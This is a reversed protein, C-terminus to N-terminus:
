CMLLWKTELSIGEARYIDVIGSVRTSIDVSSGGNGHASQIFRSGHCIQTSNSNLVALCFIVAVLHVVIPSILHMIELFLQQSGALSIRQHIPSSIRSSIVKASAKLQRRAAAVVVKWQM